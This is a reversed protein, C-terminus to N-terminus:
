RYLIWGGVCFVELTKLFNTCIKEVLVCEHSGLLACYKECICTLINGVLVCSNGRVLVCLYSRACVGHFLKM